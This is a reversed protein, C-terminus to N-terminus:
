AVSCRTPSTTASASEMSISVKSRTPCSQPPITAQIVADHCGVLIRERLTTDVGCGSASCRASRPPSGAWAALPSAVVDRHSGSTGSRSRSPASPEPLPNDVSSASVPSSSSSAHIYRNASVSGPASVAASSSTGPWPGRRAPRGSDSQPGSARQRTWRRRHTRASRLRSCPRTRQRDRCRRPGPSRTASPARSPAPRARRGAAAGGTWSSIVPRWPSKRM